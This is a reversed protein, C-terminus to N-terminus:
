KSTTSFYYVYICSNNSIFIRSFNDIFKRYTRPEICCMVCYYFTSFCFVKFLAELSLIIIAIGELIGIINVIQSTSKNCIKSSPIFLRKLLPEESYGFIYSIVKQFKTQNPRINDSEDDLEDDL